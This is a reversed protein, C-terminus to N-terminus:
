PTTMLTSFTFVNSTNKLLLTFFWCKGVVLLFTGAGYDVAPSLKSTYRDMGAERDSNVAFTMWPNEIEGGSEWSFFVGTQCGTIMIMQMTCM